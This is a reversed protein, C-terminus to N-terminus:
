VHVLHMNMSVIFISTSTHKYNHMTIENDIFIVRNSVRVVPGSHNCFTINNFNGSFFILSVTAGGSGFNNNFYSCNCVFM